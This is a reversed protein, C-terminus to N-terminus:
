ATVQIYQNTDATGAAWVGANYVATQPTINLRAESPGHYIKDATSYYSSSATFKDDPVPNLGSTLFSSCQMELVNFNM